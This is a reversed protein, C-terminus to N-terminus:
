KDNEDSLPLRKTTLYGDCSNIILFPIKGPKSLLIDDVTLGRVLSMSIGERTKITAIERLRFNYFNNVVIESGKNNDVCINNRPSLLIFEDNRVRDLVKYVFYNDISNKTLIQYTLNDDVKTSNCSLLNVMILLVYIYKM